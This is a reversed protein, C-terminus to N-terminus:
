RSDASMPPVAVTAGSVPRGSVAAVFFATADDAVAETIVSALQRHQRLPVAFAHREHLQYSGDSREVVPIADVEWGISLARKKLQLQVVYFAARLGPDDLDGALMYQFQYGVGEDDHRLDRGHISVPAVEQLRQHLQHGLNLVPQRWTNWVPIRSDFPSDPTM